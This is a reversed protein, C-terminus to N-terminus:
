KEEEVEKEKEEAEEEITVFNERVDEEEHNRVVNSV